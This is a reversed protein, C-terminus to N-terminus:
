AHGAIWKWILRADKLVVIGCLPPYTGRLQEAPSRKVVAGQDTLTFAPPRGLLGDDMAWTLLIGFLVSYAMEAYDGHGEFYSYRGSRMLGPVERLLEGCTEAIDRVIGALERVCGSVERYGPAPVDLVWGERLFKGRRERLLGAWILRRMVHGEPVVFLTDDTSRFVMGTYPNEMLSVLKSYEGYPGGWPFIIRMDQGAPICDIRTFTTKLDPKLAFITGAKQAPTRGDWLGLEQERKRMALIMLPQFVALLHDAPLGTSIGISGLRGLGERFAPYLEGKHSSLLDRIRAGEGEDLFPFSARLKGEARVSFGPVLQEASGAHLAELARPTLVDDPWRGYSRLIAKPEVFNTRVRWNARDPERGPDLDAREPALPLVDGM